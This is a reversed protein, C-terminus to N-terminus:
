RFNKNAWDRIVGVLRVIRQFGGRGRRPT